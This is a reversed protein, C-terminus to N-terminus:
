GEVMREVILGAAQDLRERVQWKLQACMRRNEELRREARQAGNDEAQNLMAKVQEQARAQVQEVQRRGEQRAQELIQKAQAIAEAKKARAEQESARVQEVARLSM